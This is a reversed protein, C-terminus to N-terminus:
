NIGFILDISFANGTLDTGGHTSYDIGNYRGLLGVYFSHTFYYNFRLGANLNFTGITVHSTYYPYYYDYDYPQPAFDFGDWGMGAILGIEYRKKSVLFYTYDIGIYGGFYYDTSDMQGEIKVAYPNASHLYRIQMTFDVEHRMSRIGAHLGFSPHVGITTLNGTPLWVGTSVALNFRAEKRKARFNKDALVAFEPYMEVNQQIEKEPNKIEGKLVKCIFKENKDLKKNELLLKAWVSSFRYFSSKSDSYSNFNQMKSPSPFSTAYNNLLNIIAGNDDVPLIFTEEEIDLLIRTIKIEPMDACSREWIEVAKQLSDFSKERYLRPLIDMANMLMTQCNPHSKAM